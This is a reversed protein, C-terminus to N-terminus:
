WVAPLLECSERATSTEVEDRQWGERSSGDEIFLPGGEASQHTLSVLRDPQLLFASHLTTFALHLVALLWANSNHPTPSVSLCPVRKVPTVKHHAPPQLSVSRTQAHAQVEAGVGRAIGDRKNVVGCGIIVGHQPPHLQHAEDHNTRWCVGKPRGRCAPGIKRTCRRRNHSTRPAPNQVDFQNSHHEGVCIDVHERPVDLDAHNCPEWTDVLFLYVAHLGNCLSAWVSAGSPEPLSRQRYRIYKCSLHQQSIQQARREKKHQKERPQFTWTPAMGCVLARSFCLCLDPSSVGSVDSLLSHCPRSTCKQIRRRIQIIGNLM